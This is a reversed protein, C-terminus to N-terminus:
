PHSMGLMLLINICLLATPLDWFESPPLILANPMIPWGQNLYLWSFQGGGQGGLESLEETIFEPRWLSWHKDVMAM